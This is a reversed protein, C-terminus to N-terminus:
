GHGLEGGAIRLVRDCVADLFARDHSAVVFATGARRRRRIQRVLEGLHRPDMGHTPEDLLALAPRHALAAALAVRQQQGYSLALTPRDALHDLDAEVMAEAAAGAADRLRHNRPSLAVEKCVTDCFLQHLPNQLLVGIERIPLGRRARHGRWRLDGSSPRLAGCLLALLTSKGAGNAGAIGVIEGPHLALRPVRLQDRRRYGGCLDVVELLLGTRRQHAPPGDAPGAPCCDAISRRLDDAPCGERLRPAAGSRLELAATALEMPGDPRHSAVLVLGDWADQLDRLTDRLAASGADDLNSTPEDLVLCRPRRAVTVALALRQIEGGSLGQLRRGRLPEVRLAEFIADVPTGRREADRRAARLEDDVRVGAMQAEPNQMVMGVRPSPAAPLEDGDLLIRGARRGGSVGPLLGAMLRCLTSKGAGSAGVVGVVRHGSLDATTRDLAPSPAGHHRFELRDLHLVAGTMRPLIGLM